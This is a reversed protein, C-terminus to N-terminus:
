RPSRGPDRELRIVLRPGTWLEIDHHEALKKAHIIAEADDDCTLAEFGVFHEDHGVKYARYEAM